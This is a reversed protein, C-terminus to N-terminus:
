TRTIEMAVKYALECRQLVDNWGTEPACGRNHAAMRARLAPDTALRVIADAMGADSDALLGHVGPEIFDAIGTRRRAVVPLGACRAELAAIGFSELTAPAVYVDARRYLERIGTRDMRGRLEVVDQLGTRRIRRELRGRLPGDGVLVLRLRVGPGVRRSATRVARLLARPRKRSALRMVSVLVVEDSREAAPVPDIEWALPEVGNPLLSVEGARGVVRRLPSVALESVATWHVRWRGWGTLVSAIAYLPTALWWLSHLTMVVPVGSRHCARVALISLPSLVSLHAHVVDPRHARLFAYMAANSAPVNRWPIAVRHVAVAPDGDPEAVAPDTPACTLVRVDHGASAQRSALDHVQVEIGGQKPLYADSVHIIRM